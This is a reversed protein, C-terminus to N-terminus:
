KVHQQTADLERNLEEIRQELTHFQDQSKHSSEEKSKLENGLSSQLQTNEDQAADLQERLKLVDSYHNKEMEDLRKEGFSPLSFSHDFPSILCTYICMYVYVCIM